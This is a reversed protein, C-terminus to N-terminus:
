FTGHLSPPKKQRNRLSGYFLQFPQTMKTNRIESHCPIITTVSSGIVRIKRIYSIYIVYVYIYM